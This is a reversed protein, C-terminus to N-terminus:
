SPRCVLAIGIELYRQVTVEQAPACNKGAVTASVSYAGAALRLQLPKGQVTKVTKVVADGQRLQVTGALLPGGDPTRSGAATTLRLDLLGTTSLADVPALDAILSPSLGLAPANGPGHVMQVLRCNRDIAFSRPGEATTFDLTVGPSGMTCSGGLGPNVPLANIDDALREAQAGTVTTTGLVLAPGGNAATLTAKVATVGHLTEAAV